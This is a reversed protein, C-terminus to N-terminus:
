WDEAVAEGGSMTGLAKWVEGDITESVFRASGDALLLNVGGAHRSNATMVVGDWTIRGKCSPKGPPLMHNYRTWNMNGELWTMGGNSDQISCTAAEGITLQDCWNRLTEETWLNDLGFLDSDLDVHQRDDDGLIRESFAATHSLGDRVNAPGFGTAQGFLGDATRGQWSSGNCARYNNAGWPRELRNTDSPCLFVAISAQAAEENPGQGTVAQPDGSTDPYFPQVRFDIKRYVAPQELYPLLQSHVSFRRSRESTYTSEGPRDADAGVGFPYVRHASQYNQVALGIQRLNHGCHALRAAERGMQVAPITIALLVGIIAIVVLMEILTLGRHGMRAGRRLRGRLSREASM